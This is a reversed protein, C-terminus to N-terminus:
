VENLDISQGIIRGNIIHDANGVIPDNLTWAIDSSSSKVLIGVNTAAYIENSKIEFDYVVNYETNDFDFVKTYTIGRDVSMYIGDNTGAFIKVIYRQEWGFGYGYHGYPTTNFLSDGYGINLGVVDFVDFFNLSNFTAPSRGWAYGYVYEINDTEFFVISNIEVGDLDSKKLGGVGDHSYFAGDDTGIVWEDLSLSDGCLVKTADPINRMKIDYTYEQPSYQYYDRYLSGIKKIDYPVQVPRLFFAFFTYTYTTEAKLEAGNGFEYTEFLDLIGGAPDPYAGWKNKINRDFESTVSVSDKFPVDPIFTNQGLLSKSVFVDTDENLVNTDNNILKVTVLGDPFPRISPSDWFINNDPVEVFRRYIERYEADNQPVFDSSSGENRVILTGVWGTSYIPNNQSGQIWYERRTNLFEVFEESMGGILPNGKSDKGGFSFIIGDSSSYTEQTTIKVTNDGKTIIRIGADGGIFLRIVGDREISWIARINTGAMQDKVFTRGQDDSKWLGNNTGIYFNDNDLFGSSFIKRPTLYNGSRFWSNGGDESLFGGENTGIFIENGPLITTTFVHDPIHEDTDKNVRFPNSLPNVSNSGINIESVDIFDNNKRVSIEISNQHETTFDFSKINNYPSRRLISNVNIRDRDNKLQDGIHIDINSVSSIKDDSLINIEFKENDPEIYSIIGNGSTTIMFEKSKIESLDIDNIDLLSTDSEIETWSVGKDSSKYIGNGPYDVYVIEKTKEGEIIIKGLANSAFTGTAIQDWSGGGDESKYLGSNTSVYVVADNATQLTRDTLNETSIAISNINKGNLGVFSFENGNDISRYVGSTTGVYLPTISKAKLLKDSLVYFTNSQRSLNGRNKPGYIPFLRSALSEPKTDTYVFGNPRIIVQGDWVTGDNLRYEKVVLGIASNIAKRDNRTKITITNETNSTIEFLVPKKIEADTRPQDITPNLSHGVLDNETISPSINVTDGESLTSTIDGDIFVGEFVASVIEHTNLGYSLNYGNLIAAKQSLVNEIDVSSSTRELIVLTEGLHRDYPNDIYIVRNAKAEFTSLTIINPSSTDYNLIEGTLKDEFKTYTIENGSQVYSYFSYYYEKGVELNSSVDLFPDSSYDDNSVSVVVSNGLVDGAVYTKNDVPVDTSIFSTTRIVLTGDSGSVNDWTVPIFTNFFYIDHEIDTVVVNKSIGNTIQEWKNEETDLKYFGSSSTGVWVETENFKSALISTLDGTKLGDNRQIWTQGLTNINKSDSYLIGDEATAIWISEHFDNKFKSIDVVNSGILNKGRKFGIDFNVEEWQEVPFSFGFVNFFNSGSTLSEYGYGIGYLTGNPPPNWGYGYGYDSTTLRWVGGGWLGAYLVGGFEPYGPINQSFYLSKIPQGPLNRSIDSFTRGKNSSHWVGSNSTSSGFLAIYINGAGDSVVDSIIAESPLNHGIRSWDISGDNTMLLYGYDHDLSKENSTTFTEKGTTSSLEGPNFISAFLQGQDYDSEFINVCRVPKYKEMLGPTTTIYSKEFSSPLDFNDNDISRYGMQLSVDKNIGSKENSYPYTLYRLNNKNSGIILNNGDNVEVLCRIGIDGVGDSVSTGFFSNQKVSNGSFYLSSYSPASFEMSYRGADKEFSYGSSILDVSFTGSNNISIINSERGFLNSNLLDPNEVIAYIPNSAKVSNFLRRYKFFPKGFGDFSVETWETDAIERQFLSGFGGAWIETGAVNYLVSFINQSFLGNSSNISDAVINSSQGPRLSYPTTSSIKILKDNYNDTSLYLDNVNKYVKRINYVVSDSDVISKKYINNNSTSIYVNNKSSIITSGNGSIALSIPETINKPDNIVIIPNVQIDKRGNTTRTINQGSFLMLENESLVMKIKSNNDDKYFTKLNPITSSNFFDITDNSFESDFEDLINKLNKYLITIQENSSIIIKDDFSSTFIGDIKYSDINSSISLKSSVNSSILRHIGDNETGILLRGHQDLSLKSVSQSSNTEVIDSFSENVAYVGKNTGIYIYPSSFSRIGSTILSDISLTVTNFKTYVGSSDKYYFSYILDSDYTGTPDIFTKENGSFVVYSTANIKDSLIYKDGVKANISGSVTVTNNIIDISQVTTRASDQYEPRVIFIKQSFSNEIPVNDLTFTTSGGETFVNLLSGSVANVYDINFSPPQVGTESITKVVVINQIDEFDNKINQFEISGDSYDINYGPSYKIEVANIIQDNLSSNTQNISKIDGNNERIYVSDRTVFVIRNFQDDIRFDVISNSREENTISSIDINTYTSPQELTIKPILTLGVTTAVVYDNNRIRIGNVSDSIMGKIQVHSSLTLYNNEDINVTYVDIGLSNGVLIKKNEEDYLFCTPNSAWYSLPFTYFKYAFQNTELSDPLRFTIGDNSSAIWFNEAYYFGNITSGIIGNNNTLIYRSSNDSANFFFVDQNYIEVDDFILNQIVDENDYYKFDFKNWTGGKNPSLYLGNVSNNENGDIDISMILKQSDNPYFKIFKIDENFIVDNGIKITKSNWTSLDSTTYLLNDAVFLASSPDSPSVTFPKQIQTITPLGSFQSSSSLSSNISYVKTTTTLYLVSSSDNFSRSLGGNICNSYTTFLEDVVIIGNNDYTRYLKDNNIEFSITENGSLTFDQGNEIALVDDRGTQIEVSNIDIATPSIWYYGYNISYVFNGNEPSYIEAIDEVDTLTSNISGITIEADSISGLSIEETPDIFIIDASTGSVTYRAIKYIGTKDGHKIKVYNNVMSNSILYNNDSISITLSYLYDIKFSSGQLFSYNGFAFLKDSESNINTDKNSLLIRNSEGLVNLFSGGFDANLDSQYKNSYSITFTTKQTNSSYKSQLINASQDSYYNTIIIDQTTSLKTITGSSIGYTDFGDADEKRVNFTRGYDQSIYLKRYDYGSFVNINKSQGTNANINSIPLLKFPPVNGDIRKIFTEGDTDSFLISRGSSLYINNDPDFAMDLNFGVEWLGAQEYIKNWTKGNDTTKYLSLPKGKRYIDYQNSNPIYHLSKPGPKSTIIYYSSSNTRSFLIRNVVPHPLSNTRIKTWRTGNFEFLGGGDTAAIIKSSKQPSIDIDLVKLNTLGSNISSWSTGDNISKFVGSGNSWSYLINSNRPDVKIQWYDIDTRDINLNDSTWVVASQTGTSTKYIGEGNTGIVINDSDNPDISLSWVKKFTLNPSIDIWNAGDDSTRYIGGGYSAVFIYTGDGDIDKISYDTIGSNIEEWIPTGVSTDYKWVGKETAAYITNTDFYLKNFKLDIEFNGNDDIYEGEFESLGNNIASFSGYDFIIYSFNSITSGSPVSNFISYYINSYVQVSSNLLTEVESFISGNVDSISITKNVSDISDIIYFNSELISPQIIMGIWSSTSDEMKFFDDYYIITKKTDPNYLVSNFVLRTEGDNRFSLRHRKIKAKGSSIDEIVFSKSLSSDKIDFPYINKDIDASIFPNSLDEIFDFYDVGDSTPNNLSTQIITSSNIESIFRDNIIYFYNTGDVISASPFVVTDTGDLSSITKQDVITSPNNDTLITITLGTPDNSTFDFRSDTIKTGSASSVGKGRYFASPKIQDLTSAEFVGHNETAIYYKDLSSHKRIDCIAYDSLSSKTSVDSTSKRFDYKIVDYDKEEQFYGIRNLSSPVILDYRNYNVFSHDLLLANVKRYDNILDERKFLVPCESIGTNIIVNSSLSRLQGNNINALSTQNEPSYLLTEILGPNSDRYQYYSLNNRNSNIKISNSQEGGITQDYYIFPTADELVQVRNSNPNNITVYNNNISEKNYFVGTWVTYDNGYTNIYLNNESSDSKGSFRLDWIRWKKTNRIKDSEKESQDFDQYWFNGKNKTKFIGSFQTGLFATKDDSFFQAVNDYETPLSISSWSTGGNSTMFAGVSTGAYIINSDTKGVKFTTIDHVSLGDTISFDTATGTYKGGIREWSNAARKFIGGGFSGSDRASCYITNNSDVDFCSINLNEDDILDTFGSNFDSFDKGLNTSVFVGRDSTGVYLIDNHLLIKTPNSINFISEGIKNWSSFSKANVGRVQSNFGQGAFFVKLKPDYSDFYLIVQTESQKSVELLQLPKSWLTFWKGIPFIELPVEYDFTVWLKTKDIIEGSLLQNPDFIESGQDGIYRYDNITASLVNGDHKSRYLGNSTSAFIENTATERVAIDFVQFDSRINSDLIFRDIKDIKWDLNTNRDTIQGETNIKVFGTKIGEGIVGWGYGYQKRYISNSGWYIIPSIGLDSGDQIHPIHIFNFNNTGSSGIVDKDLIYRDFNAGDDNSVFLGGYDKNKLLVLIVYNKSPYVKVDSIEYRSNNINNKSDYAGPNFLTEWSSSAGDLTRYLGNNTTGFYVVDDDTPDIDISTIFHDSLGSNREELRFDEGWQITWTDSSADYGLFIGKFENPITPDGSVNMYEVVNSKRIWKETSDTTDPKFFVGKDTLAYFGGLDVSYIVSFVCRSFNGCDTQEYIKSNEITSNILDIIKDISLDDIEVNELECIDFVNIIDNLASIYQIFNSNKIGSFRHTLGDEELSLANEIDEHSLVGSSKIYGASSTSPITIRVVSDTTIPSPLTVLGINGFPLLTIDNSTKVDIDISFKINSISEISDTSSNTLISTQTADPDDTRIRISNFSNSYIEYTEDPNNLNAVVKIGNLNFGFFTNQKTELLIEKVLKKEGTSFDNYEISKIDEWTGSISSIFRNNLYIREGTVLDDGWPGRLSYLSKIKSIATVVDKPFLSKNFIIQQAHFNFEYEEPYSNYVISQPNNNVFVLPDSNYFVKFEDGNKIKQSKTFKGDLRDIRIEYIDNLPDNVSVSLIRFYKDANVGGVGKNFVITDGANANKLNSKVTLIKTSTNIGIVKGILSNDIFINNEYEIPKGLILFSNRISLDYPTSVSEIQFVGSDCGLYLEQDDSDTNYTFSEIWNTNEALSNVETDFTVNSIKIWQGLFSKEYGFGFGYSNQYATEFSPTGYGANTGVFEFVDFFEMGSGYGQGYGYYYIPIRKKLYYIGDDTAIVINGDLISIDYIQTFNVGSGLVPSWNIFLDSGSIAYIQNDISFLKDYSSELAKPEPIWKPIIFYEEPNIAPVPEKNLTLLTSTDNTSIATVLFESARDKRALIISGNVEFKDADSSNISIIRGNQKSILTSPSSTTRIVSDSGNENVILYINGNHVVLDKITSNLNSYIRNWTKINGNIDKNAFSFVIKAEDSSNITASVFINDNLHDVSLWKFNEIGPILYEDDDKNFFNSNSSFTNSSCISKWEDDSKIFITKESLLVPIINGDTDNGVYDTKIPPSSDERYDISINFSGFLRDETTSLLTNNAVVYWAGDINSIHRVNSLPPTKPLGPRYIRRNNTECYILDISDEVSNSESPIPILLEKNRGIHSVRPIMEPSIYGDNINSASFFASIENNSYQSLGDTQLINKVQTLETILNLQCQVVDDDSLPHSFRIKITDNNDYILWYDGYEKKGNIYIIIEYPFIVYKYVDEFTQTIINSIIDETLINKGYNNSSVIKTSIKQTIDPNVFYGRYDINDTEQINIIEDFRINNSTIIGSFSKFDSYFYSDIFGSIDGEDVKKFIYVTNADESSNEPPVPTGTIIKTKSTLKIKSLSLESGSDKHDHEVLAQPINKGEMSSSVFLKVSSDISLITNNGTEVIAIPLSDKPVVRIQVTDTDLRKNKFIINQGDITFPGLFKKGNIYAEVSDNNIDISPQDILYTSYANSGSETTIANRFVKNDALVVIETSLDEDHLPVLYILYSQFSELTLSSTKFSRVAIRSSEIVIENNVETEIFTPVIALGDTVDLILSNNPNKSTNFGTIVGTSYNKLISNIQTDLTVFRRRESDLYYPSGQNFYELKFKQTRLVM